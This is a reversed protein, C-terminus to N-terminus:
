AGGSEAAAKAAEAEAKAADAEAKAQNAAAIAANAQATAATSAAASAAAAASSAASQAKVADIQQQASAKAGETIAAAAKANNELQRLTELSTQDAYDPSWAAAKSPVSEGNTGRPVQECQSKELVKVYLLNQNREALMVELTKYDPIQKAIGGVMIYYTYNEKSKPASDESVCRFITGDLLEYTPAAPIIDDTFYEFQPNLVEAIDQDYVFVKQAIFNLYVKEKEIPIIYANAGNRESLQYSRVDISAQSEPLPTQGEKPITILRSNSEARTTYTIGRIVRQM